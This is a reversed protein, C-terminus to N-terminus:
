SSLPLNRPEWLLAIYDITILVAMSAVDYTGTIPCLFVCFFAPDQCVTANMSEHFNVNDIPNQSGCWKKLSFNKSVTCGGKASSTSMFKYKTDRNSLIDPVTYTLDQGRQLRVGAFATDSSVTSSGSVFTATCRSGIVVSHGYFAAWEDYGVPQSGGLAVDPDYMSNARFFLHGAVGIDPNITKQVVYRLKVLQRNNMVPRIQKSVIPYTKKAKRRAYRKSKNYRKKAKSPM